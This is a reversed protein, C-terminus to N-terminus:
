SADNQVEKIQFTQDSTVLRYYNEKKRPGDHKKDCLKTRTFSEKEPLAVNNESATMCASM